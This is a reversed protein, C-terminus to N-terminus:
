SKICKCYVKETKLEIKYVKWLKLVGKSIKETKLM